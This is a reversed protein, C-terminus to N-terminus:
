PENEGERDSLFEIVKEDSFVDKCAFEVEIHEIDYVIIRSVLENVLAEDFATTKMNGRLRDAWAHYEAVVAKTRELKRQQEQLANVLKGRDTILNEKLCLYEEEDLAHDVYDTYARLLKKEIVEVRERILRIRREIPNLKGEKGYEKEVNRILADKDCITQILLRIQDMAVIKLYNQQFIHNNKCDMNKRQNLCRYFQFVADHDGTHHSTRQFRMKYGCHACYIKGHFVDPTEMRRKRTRELGADMQKKTEAIQAVIRDSDEQTIYPEHSNPFLKWESRPKKVSISGVSSDREQRGLAICGAYSPNVLFYRVVEPYWQNKRGFRRGGPTPAELANLRDSIQSRSLGALHWAFILRVYPEAVPDIQFHKTAEDYRYGYPATGNRVIGQEQKAKITARIKRSYDKAYMANIMNKIPTILEIRSDPRNSDYQDTIAIFRVNLLPFIQDLYYGTELYDRGFRSLDKVVICQVRGTKVDEMLRNFEPRDFKTGSVGNDVYTDILSLEPQELIYSHVLKIQTQLTDDTEHGGNERSLRIYAATALTSERIFDTEIEVRATSETSYIPQKRSKRAM